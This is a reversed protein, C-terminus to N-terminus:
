LDVGYDRALQRAKELSARREEEPILNSSVSGQHHIWSMPAVLFPLQNGTLERIVAATLNDEGWARGLDPHFLNVELWGKSRRQQYFVSVRNVLPAPMLWAIAPVFRASRPPAFMARPAYQEPASTFDTTPCVIRDEGQRHRWLEWLWDTDRDAPEVDDNLVLIWDEAAVFPWAQTLIRDVNLAFGGNDHDEFVRNWVHVNVGQNEMRDFCSAMAGRFSKLREHVNARPADWSPVVVHITPKNM